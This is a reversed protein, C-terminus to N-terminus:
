FHVQCLSPNINQNAGTNSRNLSGAGSSRSNCGNLSNNRNNISHTSEGSLLIGVMESTSFSNSLMDVWTSLQKGHGIMFEVQDLALPLPDMMTACNRLGAKTAYYQFTIQEPDGWISMAFRLLATKGSLSHGCAHYYINIHELISVIPSAFSAALISRAYPFNSRILNGTSLWNSWAANYRDNSCASNTLDACGELEACAKEDHHSLNHTLNHLFTHFDNYKNRNPFYFRSMIDSGFNNNYQQM